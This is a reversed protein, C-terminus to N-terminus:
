NGEAAKLKGADSALGELDEVFILEERSKPFPVYTVVIVIVVITIRIIIVWFWALWIPLGIFRKQKFVEDVRKHFSVLANQIIQDGPSMTPHHSTLYSSLSTLM